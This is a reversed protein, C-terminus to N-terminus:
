ESKGQSTQVIAVQRPLRQRLHAALRLTLALVTMTPNAWSGTPFVSGGIVYLNDTGHVCCQADVVGNRADSSMRTTGLHHNSHLVASEDVTDIFPGPDGTALGAQVLERGINAATRRYSQWDRTSLRWDLEVRRLGIADRDQTLRLRSISNPEQELFLGIRAPEDPEMQPTHFAHARANLLGERRRVHPAIGLLFEFELEPPIRFRTTWQALRKDSTGRIGPIPLHPHEMFCRGVMGGANGLGGEIQGDANLLLRASELGGAAIVVIRSRIRGLRGQATRVAVESINRGDSALRLDVAAAHTLATINRAKDIESSFQESFRATPQGFRWVDMAFDASFRYCDGVRAALKAANFGFDPLNLLAGAELYHPLLEQRTIPWGGLPREPDDWFDGEDFIACYGSWISTSGGFGSRRTEEIPYPLGACAIFGDHLEGVGAESGGAEVVVVDFAKGLERALTIGAAGAGIITVDASRDLEFTTDRADVFM